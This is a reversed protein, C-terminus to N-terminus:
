ERRLRKALVLCLAVLAAAAILWAVLGEPIPGIHGLSWGGPDHPARAYEVYAVISDLQSNSIAKESFRPMVYPGIRVAEAIQAPTASQLPPALAGTLYGGQAVVQHCGACHTTFLQLGEAVNGREPQPHPIAPGHGLSGVYAILARLQTETFLVRGRTPEQGLSELPMRGTRLYFDAAQEGVDTLPPGKGVVAGSVNRTPTDVFGEGNPGHCIACNGAYLQSGLELLPTSRPANAQVIGYPPPVSGAATAPLVLAVLALPLLVRARM